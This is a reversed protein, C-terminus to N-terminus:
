LKITLKGVASVAIDLQYDALIKVFVERNGTPTNLTLILRIRHGNALADIGTQNLPIDAIQRRVQSVVGDTNLFPTQLVLKSPVTYLASDNEDEISFEVTASLPLGNDAVVRLSVSDTEDFDLGDGLNYTVEHTLDDLSVEMPLRMEINTTITSNRLVFNSQTPDEPNSIATISFGLTNPSAGLLSRISSNGSNVSVRSSAFEGPTSAGAVLQPVTAAPGTLFITDSGTETQDVGYMRDFTVGVPLGFSNSFDFNIEPNGFRLGSEGFDSFFDIDLTENGIQVTDQGFKGYILNFVQNRYLLNLEISDNLAISGGSGVSATIQTNVSFVNGEVETFSLLTKHGALDVSSSQSGDPGVNGSFTVSENTSVRRTNVIEVDYSIAHSVFSTVSLVMEGSEYFLSDIQEQNETPFTFTFDREIQVTQSGVQAPTEPLYIEGSNSVDEISIIEEGSDFSASDFYTLYLLSTSDEQLDLEEDEVEDILERVTYSLTGIPIAVLPELTPDEINSFDLDSVNCSICALLLILPAIQSRM